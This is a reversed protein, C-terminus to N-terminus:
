RNKGKGGGYLVDDLGAISKGQGTLDALWTLAGQLPVAQPLKDEGCFRIRAVAQPVVPLTLWQPTSCCCGQRAESFPIITM